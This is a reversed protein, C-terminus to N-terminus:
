EHPVTKLETVLTADVSHQQGHDDVIMYDMGKKKAEEPPNTWNYFGVVEGVCKERKTQWTVRKGIM